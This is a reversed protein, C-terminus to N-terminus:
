KLNKFIRNFRISKFIEDLNSFDFTSKVSWYIFEARGIILDEPVFGWFRSDASSDRNDGLMFFHNKKFTYERSPKGDIMIVSGEESVVKRGSDRNITTKWEHINRANINIKMGKKPVQIPGFYDKNWNKGSPFIREDAEGYNIISEGNIMAEPPLKLRVENVFVDKNVIWVEDGPLGILRKVLTLDDSPYVEDKEGPFQFVVIDNRQPERFAILKWQPIRVHTLPIVSPTHFSYAIKNILVFDGSLITNSMSNTPIKAAEIFFSKVIIAAIFTILLIIFLRFIKSKISRKKSNSSQINTSETQNATM